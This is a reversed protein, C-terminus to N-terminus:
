PAVREILRALDVRSASDAAAYAEAITRRDQDHIKLVAERILGTRDPPVQILHDGGRRREKLHRPAGAKWDGERRDGELM